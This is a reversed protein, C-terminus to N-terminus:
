IIQERAAWFPTFRRGAELSEYKDYAELLVKKFSEALKAMGDEAVLEDWVSYRFVIMLSSQNDAAVVTFVKIPQGEGDPAFVIGIEDFSIVEQVQALKKDISRNGDIRTASEVLESILKFKMIGERERWDILESRELFDADALVDEIQSLALISLGHEENAM